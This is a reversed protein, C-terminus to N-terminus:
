SPVTRVVPYIHGLLTGIGPLIHWERRIRFYMRALWGGIVAKLGTIEVLTFKLGGILLM